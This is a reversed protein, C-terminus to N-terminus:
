MGLKINKWQQLARTLTENVVAEIVSLKEMAKVFKNEEAELLSITRNLLSGFDQGSFDRRRSLEGCVTSVADEMECVETEAETGVVDTWLEPLVQSVSNTRSPRVGESVKWDQTKGDLEKLRGGSPSFYPRSGDSTCYCGSWFSLSVTIFLEALLFPRVM